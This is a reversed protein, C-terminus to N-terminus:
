KLRPFLVQEEKLMHTSVESNLVEVLERIKHMEPHSHGHRSEVKSALAALRPLEKKAYTHHQDVIYDSFESLTSTMWHHENEAPRAVLASSLHSLILNLSVNQKACAAELPRNGGCCYDIGFAEFVAVTAPYERAIEEVTQTSNLNM